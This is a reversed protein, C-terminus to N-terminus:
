KLLHDEVYRKLLRLREKSEMMPCYIYNLDGILATELDCADEVYRQWSDQSKLLMDYQRTSLKLKLKLLELKIESDYFEKAKRSCYEVTANRYGGEKEICDAYPSPEAMVGVSLLVLSLIVTRV